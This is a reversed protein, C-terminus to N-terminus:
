WNTSLKKAKLLQKEIWNPKEQEISQIIECIVQKPNKKKKGIITELCICVLSLKEQSWRDLIAGTLLETINGDEFIQCM